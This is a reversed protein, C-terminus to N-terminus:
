DESYFFASIVRKIKSLEKAPLACFFEIPKDTVISAVVAAYGPDLEPTLSVGKRQAFLRHATILQEGTMEEVASLDIENIIEGEFEFPKKFVVLFENEKAIIKDDM